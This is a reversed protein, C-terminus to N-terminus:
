GLADLVARADVDTRDKLGALRHCIEAAAEHFGPPLGAAAMAAAIERMEAEFRWAKPATGRATGDSRQELGPQSLAWEALLDADVGEAMAYARVALLLTGSGKTWAAYAVKLASATGAGGALPRADLDSGQWLAAVADAEPGALYLRTSGSGDVPPGIIGGDVFRDFHGGIRRATDPAVANADVYIGEFGTAAVASAVDEAAEPPCVSVIVDSRDGLEELTAVAVLGAAGARAVTAESRGASCWLREAARCAAAVSAGMAGPHLFGVTSV